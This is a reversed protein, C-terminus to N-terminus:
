SDADTFSCCSQQSYRLRMGRGILPLFISGGRPFTSSTTSSLSRQYLTKRLSRHGPCAWFPSLYWFGIHFSGRMGKGEKEDWASALWTTTTESNSSWPEIRSVAEAGEESIALKHQAQQLALQDRAKPCAALGRWWKLYSGLRAKTSSTVSRLANGRCMVLRFLLGADQLLGSHSRQVAVPTRPNKAVIVAKEDTALEKKGKQVSGLMWISILAKTTGSRRFTANRISPALGLDGM